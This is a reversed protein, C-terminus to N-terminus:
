VLITSKVPYEESISVDSEYFDNLQKIFEQYEIECQETVEFNIDDYTGQGFRMHTTDSLELWNFFPGSGSGSGSGYGSGSGSGYDNWNDICVSDQPINCINEDWDIDNLIEHEVKYQELTEALKKNDENCKENDENCKENNQQSKNLLDKLKENDENCKENDENCKKNNQQSKNLLDKLKENDVNCKENDENCKKNNQQSKNLLDKLKKNDENCKENADPKKKDCCILLPSSIIESLKKIVSLLYELIVM